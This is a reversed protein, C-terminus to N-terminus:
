GCLECAYRVSIDRLYYKLVKAATLSARVKQALGPLARVEIEILELNGHIVMLPTKFEHTVTSLLAGRYKQEVLKRYVKESDTPDRILFLTSEIENFVIKKVGLSFRVDTADEGTLVYESETCIEALEMIGKDKFCQGSRSRVWFSRMFPDIEGLLLEAAGDSTEHEPNTILTNAPLASIFGRLASNAFLVQSNGCVAVGDSLLMLLSKWNESDLRSKIIELLLEKRIRIITYACM